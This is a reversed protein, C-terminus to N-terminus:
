KKRNTTNNVRNNLPQYTLLRDNLQKNNTFMFSLRGSPLVQVSILYDGTPKLLQYNLYTVPHVFKSNKGLNNIEPALSHKKLKFVEAFHKARILATDYNGMYVLEASNFGEDPNSQSTYNSFVSEFVMDVPPVFGLDKLWAPMEKIVEASSVNFNKATVSIKYNDTLSDYQLKSIEGSMFKKELIMLESSPSINKKELFPLAARLSDYGIIGLLITLLIGFFSVIFLKEFLQKNM